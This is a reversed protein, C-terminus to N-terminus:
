KKVKARLWIREKSSKLLKRSIIKMVDRPIQGFPGTEEKRLRYICWLQFTARQCAQPAMLEVLAASVAESGSENGAPLQNGALRLVQLQDLRDFDWPLAKIANRELSLRKVNQLRCLSFPIVAIENFSLDLSTLNTLSGIGSAVSRLRNRSLSLETLSTLHSIADPVETLANDTILLRQLCHASGKLSYDWPHSQYSVFLYWANLYVRPRKVEFLHTPIPGKLKNFSLIVSDLATFKSISEPLELM